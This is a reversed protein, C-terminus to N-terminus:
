VVQGQKFILCIWDGKQYTELLHLNSNKQIYSQIIDKEQGKLLGSLILFGQEECSNALFDIEYELVNKLINAFVLKYRDQLNDRGAALLLQYKKNSFNNLEINQVTNDLAAQDIDYFDVDIEPYFLYTALGLIGSGCGFDLCTDIKEKSCYERFAKLCLYTTEHSGTGFGMGPYILLSNALNPKEWSPVIELDDSVKIASYSERWKANWDQVEEELVGSNKILKESLQQVFKEADQNTSFYVSLGSDYDIARESVEDIVSEPIDAGSYSRVGLIEDVQPEDLSFELVGTTNCGQAMKQVNSESDSDGLILKVIYYKEQM